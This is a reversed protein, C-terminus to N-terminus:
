RRSKTKRGNKRAKGKTKREEKQNRGNLLNRQLAADVPAKM